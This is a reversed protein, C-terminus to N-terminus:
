DPFNLTTYIHVAFIHVVSYLLLQVLKQYGFLISQEPLRALKKVDKTLSSFYM